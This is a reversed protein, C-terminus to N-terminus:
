GGRAEGHVEIHQGDKETLSRLFVLRDGRMVETIDSEQRYFSIGILEVVIRLHSEIRMADPGRDVVDTRTGIEGYSPHVVTYVYVQQGALASAAGLLVSLGVAGVIAGIAVPM